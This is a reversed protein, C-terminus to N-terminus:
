HPNRQREEALQVHSVTDTIIALDNNFVLLPGWTKHFSKLSGKLAFTFKELQICQLVEKIRTDHTPPPMSGNLNTFAIICVCRKTTLMNQTPPLGFWATQPNPDINTNLAEPKYVNPWFDALRACTWFMYTIYRDPM